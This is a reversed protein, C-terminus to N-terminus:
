AAVENDPRTTPDTSRRWPRLAGLTLGRRRLVDAMVLFLAATALLPWMDRYEGPREDDFPSDANSLLRGGTAQALRKLTARDVGIRRRERDASWYFQPRPAPTDSFPRETLQSV